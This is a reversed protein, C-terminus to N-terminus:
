LDLAKNVSLKLGELRANQFFAGLGWQLQRHNRKDLLHCAHCVLPIKVADLSCNGHVDLPVIHCM